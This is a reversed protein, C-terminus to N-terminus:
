LNPLLLFRPPKKPPPLDAVYGTLYNRQNLRGLFVVLLASAVVSPLSLNGMTSQLLQVVQHVSSQTTTIHHQHTLRRNLQQMRQRNLLDPPVHLSPRSKQFLAIKYPQVFHDAAFTNFYTLPALGCVWLIFLGYIFKKGIGLILKITIM